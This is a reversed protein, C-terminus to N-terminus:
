AEKKAELLNCIEELYQLVQHRFRADPGLPIGEANRLGEGKFRKTHSPRKTSPKTGQRRRM